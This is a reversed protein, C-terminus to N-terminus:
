VGEMAKLASAGVLVDKQRIYWRGYQQEADLTKNHAECRAGADTLNVYLDILCDGSSGGVGISDGMDQFVAYVFM